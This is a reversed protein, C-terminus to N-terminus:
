KVNLVERLGYIGRLRFLFVKRLFFNILFTFVAACLKIIEPNFSLLDVGVYLFIRSFLVGVGGLLFFASLEVLPCYALVRFRFVWFISLSYSVVAGALFGGVVALSIGLEVVRIFFSFVLLDVVLAVLSVVLYRFAEQRGGLVRCLKATNKKLGPANAKLQM